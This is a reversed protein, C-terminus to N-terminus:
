AILNNFSANGTQCFLSKSMFDRTNKVQEDLQNPMSKITVGEVAPLANEM